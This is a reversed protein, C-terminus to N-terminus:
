CKMLSFQYHDNDFRFIEGSDYKPSIPFAHEEYGELCFYDDAYEDKMIRESEFIEPEQCDSHLNWYKLIYKGKIDNEVINFLEDVTIYKM